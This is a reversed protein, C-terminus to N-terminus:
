AKGGLFKAFEEPYDWHPYHNYDKLVTFNVQRAKAKERIETNDLLYKKLEWNAGLCHGLTKGNTVVEFKANPWVKPTELFAKDAFKRYVDTRMHSIPLISRENAAFDAVDKLIEPPIVHLTCTHEPDPHQGIGKLMDDRTPFGKLSTSQFCALLEPSHNYYSANWGPFRESQEAPTLTTDYIPCYIEDVSPNPIGFGFYPSDFVIVNRLYDNLVDVTAERFSDAIGLFPVTFCNGASWGLFSIGGSGDENRRPIKETEVFWRMFEAFERVREELFAYQADQNSSDKVVALEEPTFLTSGSVDRHNLFVLRLNNEAAYQNLRQFIGGNFIAGHTLVLTKYNSSNAPVGSDEYYLHNGNNDVPAIPM